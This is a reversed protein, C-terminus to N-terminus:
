PEQADDADTRDDACLEHCAERSKTEAIFAGEDGVSAKIRTRVIRALMAASSVQGFMTIRQQATQEVVPGHRCYAGREEFRQIKLQSSTTQRASLCDDDDRPLEGADGEGNVLRPLYKIYCFMEFTSSM